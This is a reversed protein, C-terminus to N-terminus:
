CSVKEKYKQRTKSQWLECEPTLLVQEKLPASNRRSQWLECEPTLLVARGRFGGSGPSQWLECEPTLLVFFIDTGVHGM